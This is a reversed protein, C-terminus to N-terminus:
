KSSKMEWIKQLYVEAKEPKQNILEEYMKIAEEFNRQSFYIDALTESVIKKGEFQPMNEPNADIDDRPIIKAKSLQKALEDLNDEIKEPESEEPVPINGVDHFAPRITDNIESREALIDEIKKLYIEHTQPSDILDAGIKAVIRAEEEKGEYAKALSLILFASPYTSHRHIGEDLIKIAELYNGKEIETYAVRAFLPSEINFEYILKIKEAHIDKV